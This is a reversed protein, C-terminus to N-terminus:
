VRSLGFVVDGRATRGEWASASAQGGEPDLVSLVDIHAGDPLRLSPPDGRLILPDDLARRLEGLSWRLAGLPDDAEAFLLSALRARPPPRESLVLYLLLGWAKRGRPAQVPVGDREIAPKGLLRVALSV